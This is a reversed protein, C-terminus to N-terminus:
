TEASTRRAGGKSHSYVNLTTSVNSHGIQKSVYVLNQGQEIRLSVNTHRLDHFRVTRIKAARLAPLFGRHVMNDPDLITGDSNSFVLDLGGKHCSLRHKKLEHVLTPFMDVKRRANKTKPSQLKKSTNCYSRRVYIQNSVRLDNSSLIFM